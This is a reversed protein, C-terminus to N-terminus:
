IAALGATLAVRVVATLRSASATSAPPSWCKKLRTTFAALQEATLSAKPDTKADKELGDASRQEIPWPLLTEVMSPAAQPQTPIPQQPPTPQQKASQEQRPEDPPKAVEDPRVIDVEITQPPVAALMRPGTLLAFGILVVAAHAILSLLLVTATRMRWHGDARTPQHRM